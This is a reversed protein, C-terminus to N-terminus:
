SCKQFVLDQAQYAAYIQIQIEIRKTLKCIKATSHLGEM